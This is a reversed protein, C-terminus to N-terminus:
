ASKWTKGYVYALFAEPDAPEGPLRLIADRHCDGVLAGEFDLLRDQADEPLRDLAEEMARIVLRHLDGRRFGEAARATVFARLEPWSESPPRGSVDAALQLLDALAAARREESIAVKAEGESM